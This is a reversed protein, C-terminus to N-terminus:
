AGKRGAARNRGPGFICRTLRAAHAYLSFGCAPSSLMSRRNHRPFSAIRDGGALFGRERLLPALVAMAEGPTAGPGAQRLCEAALELSTVEDIELATLYLLIRDRAAFRRPGASSPKHASPTDTPNM